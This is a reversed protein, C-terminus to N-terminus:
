KLHELARSHFIFRKYVFFSECAIILGAMIQAILYHIGVFEVFGYILATNIGLNVLAVILYVAAQSHMLDISHDGFTWFKQFCFSVVFAVIFSLVASILYWIGLTDTFFYLLTINVLAATGGSVIYKVARRYTFAVNYIHPFHSGAFSHIKYYTKIM